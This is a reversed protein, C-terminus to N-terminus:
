SIEQRQFIATGVCLVFGVFLVSTITAYQLFPYFYASLEWVTMNLRSGVNSAINLQFLDPILLHIIWGLGREILGADPAAALVQYLSGSLSGAILFGVTFGTTALVEFFVSFVTTISLVMAIGLWAPATGIFGPVIWKTTFRKLGAYAGDTVVTWGSPLREKSGDVELENAGPTESESAEEEEDSESQYADLYREYQQNEVHNLVRHGDFQWLNLCFMVFLFIVALSIAYLLGIYKGTIFSFRSVPKSLVTLISMQEMEKRVLLWGLLLALLYGCATISAIGTEMVVAEEGQFVFLVFYQSLFVLAGFIGTVIYFIPERRAQSATTYTINFLGKM